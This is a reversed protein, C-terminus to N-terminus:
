GKLSKRLKPLTGIMFGIALGGIIDLPAHVGLYIRSFAVLLVGIPLTWRWKPPILPYLVLATVTAQATHGSPFGQGTAALDKAHLNLLDFPRARDVLNKILTVVLFCLGSAWILRAAYSYRRRWLLLLTIVVVSLFGAMQTIALVPLRWSDPLNYINVFLREEWSPLQHSSALSVGWALAILCALWLIATLKRSDIGALRVYAM